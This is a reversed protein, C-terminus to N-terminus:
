EKDKISFIVKGLIDEKEIYTNLFYRSDKSDNRNDGMVFYCDDPVEFHLPSDSGSMMVWTEKIYDEELPTESNDIYVKGDIIDVTENPLGIVRKADKKKVDDKINFVIIDNRNIKHIFTSYYLVDECKYTNEMSTTKIKYTRVSNKYFVIGCIITLFLIGITVLTIKKKM